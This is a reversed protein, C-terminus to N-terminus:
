VVGTFVKNLGGTTTVKNRGGTRNQDWLAAEKRGNPFRRERLETCSKDTKRGDLASRM